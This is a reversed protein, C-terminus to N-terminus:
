TRRIEDGVRITGGQIIEMRLGGRHILARAVGPASLSELHGCPPCERMGECLVEGIWFRKGVLSPLDAGRITLNRRSAGPEIKIGHDTELSRLAAEDIATLQRGAGPTQSYTGSGDFYRDGELGRGPVARASPVAKPVASATPTIYIGEVAGLARQESTRPESTPATM